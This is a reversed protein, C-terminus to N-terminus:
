GDGNVDGAYDASLGFYQEAAPLPSLLDYNPAAPLGTPGGHFVSVRGANFPSGGFPRGVLVDAHGDGNVDGAPRVLWTDEQRTVFMWAPVLSPGEPGGLFLAARAQATDEVAIRVLVDGFGDGNVDGAPAVGQGFFQGPFTGTPSWPLAPFPDVETGARPSPPSALMGALFAVVAPLARVIRLPVPRARRNM